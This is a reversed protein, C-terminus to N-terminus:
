HSFSTQVTFRQLQALKHFCGAQNIQKIGDTVHILIPHRDRGVRPPSQDSSLELLVLAKVLGATHCFDTAPFGDQDDDSNAAADM